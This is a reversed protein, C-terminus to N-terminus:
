SFLEIIKDAYSEFVGRATHKNIGEWTKVSNMEILIDILQKRRQTKQGLSRLYGWFNM